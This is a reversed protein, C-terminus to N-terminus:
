NSDPSRGVLQGSLADMECPDALDTCRECELEFTTHALGFPGAVQGRVREGLAQAEELTPHGALVLHASLARVESSLSWVHLDHVDTIGGVGTISSRLAALDVDSPTSELLVEISTRVLRVAQVVILVSLALSAAPDALDARHGAALVVIGAVMALAASASDATMHAAASRMNLDRSGDRLVAAALLNVVLAVGAIAALSVGHVTEPHVLRDISLAVISATVLALAGANFLAALITARHNGFSRADSRPRSAWRVALVAAVLGAVDTLNHGADALLASAHAAIGGIVEGAVLAANVALALALRRSRTLRPM